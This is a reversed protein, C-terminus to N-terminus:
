EAGVFRQWVELTDDAASEAHGRFLLVLTGAALLCTIGDIRFLWHYGYVSLFGGVTPGIAMGLNIALRALAVARAELGPPAMQTLAALNAPRFSEAAVSAVLVLVGLTWPTRPLELMLYTVGSFALGGAMVARAGIVDTLWGGVLSGIVAGVGHLAVISGATTLAWGLDQTLYLALFVLVMSGARNVLLVAALSWIPRPLGRFADVYASGIRRIWRGPASSM